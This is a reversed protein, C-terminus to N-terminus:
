TDELSFLWSQVLRRPHVKENLCTLHSHFVRQDDNFDDVHHRMKLEVPAEKAVPKGCFVCPPPYPTGPELVQRATEETFPIVPNLRGMLLTVERAWASHGLRTWEDILAANELVYSMADRAREVVHRSVPESIRPQRLPSGPRGNLTAIMDAAAIVRQGTATDVPGADGDLIPVFIADLEAVSRASDFLDKGAENDFSCPGWITM